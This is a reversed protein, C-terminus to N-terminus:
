VFMRWAQVENRYITEFIINRIQDGGRRGEWEEEKEWPWGDRRGIKGEEGMWKM